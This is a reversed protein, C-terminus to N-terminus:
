GVRGGNNMKEKGDLRKLNKGSVINNTLHLVPCHIEQLRAYGCIDKKREVWKREDSTLIEALFPIVM